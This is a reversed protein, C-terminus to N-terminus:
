RDSESFVDLIRRIVGPKKVEPATFQLEFSLNEAEIQKILRDVTANMNDLAKDEADM